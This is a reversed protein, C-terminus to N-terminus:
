TQDILESTLNNTTVNMRVSTLTDGTSSSGIEDHYICTMIMVGGAVQDQKVEVDTRIEVREIKEMLETFASDNILISQIEELADEMTDALDDADTDKCYYEFVLDLTMQVQCWSSISDFDETKRPTMVNVLPLESSQVNRRMSDKVTVGTLGATLLTVAKERIQRSVSPM